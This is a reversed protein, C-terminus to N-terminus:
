KKRASMLYYPIEFRRNCIESHDHITKLQYTQNYLLKFTVHDRIFELARM